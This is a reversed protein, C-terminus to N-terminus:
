SRQDSKRRPNNTLDNLEEVSEVDIPIITTARGDLPKYILAIVTFLDPLSQGMRQGVTLWPM